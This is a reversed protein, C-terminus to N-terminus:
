QTGPPTQGSMGPMPSPVQQYMVRLPVRTLVMEEGLMIDFWYIGQEAVFLGIPFVSQVGRDRGEFYCPLNPGPTKTGTPSTVTIKVTYQGTMEDSKLILAMTVQIPTPQMEATTGALSLGDVIKIVSLNGTGAEIIATQCFAAISVWPRPARIEDPESMAQVELFL